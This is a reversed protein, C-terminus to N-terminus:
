GVASKRTRETLEAELNARAKGEYRDRFFDSLYVPRRLMARLFLVRRSYFAGTGKVGVYEQELDELYAQYLEDDAALIAQDCDLFLAEELSVENSNVRGLKGTLRILREVADIDLTRDALMCRAIRGSMDESDGPPRGPEYVIDHLVLATFTEVPHSWLGAAHVTHWHGLVEKVHSFAHYFRHPANYQNEIEEWEKPTFINFISSEESPSM